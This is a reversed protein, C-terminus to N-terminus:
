ELKALWILFFHLQLRSSRFSPRKSHSSSVPDADCFLNYIDRNDVIFIM